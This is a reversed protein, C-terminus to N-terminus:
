DKKTKPKISHSLRAIAQFIMIFSATIVICILPSKYDEWDLFWYLPKERVKTAVFNILCYLAFIPILKPGHNFDLRIDTAFWCM